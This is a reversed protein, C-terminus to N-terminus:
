NEKLIELTNCIFSSGKYDNRYTGNILVGIDKILKLKEKEYTEAFLVVNIEGSDVFCKLIAMNEKKKTQIIKVEQIICAISYVSNISSLESILSIDNRNISDRYKDLFSGSILIGLVEIEKELKVKEEEPYDKISPYLLMEEEKSLLSFQSTTNKVYQLIIPAAKRLTNRTKNFEDFSGANILTIIQTLTINYEKMRLIFDTFDIFNGNETREYVIAESVSSPIGKISTFPIILRRNESIFTLSSKNISPLSFSFKLAKLEKTFKNESLTQYDLLTSYFENPYHSKLYAMQYSIISYAVSHSKNFGYNAFKYILNFIDTADKKSFNNKIAGSIFSDKLKELKSEDKKSIARRFLDAESLSFLAVKRVIQMITEKYIIVGYTPKLIEELCPHIYKIPLNNNKTKAYIDIFEMPGPRYLALVAVIDDFTNMQVRKIANTMGESELQFIGQTFGLNLCSFAKKDDYPISSLDFNSENVKIKKIINDIISLNRLGLIDMKLFGLEELYIAEFQCVLKGDNGYNVPICTDLPEDNLIIGAAHLGTQRPLGEILKALRYIRGFYSDNCLNDFEPNTKRATELSVSYGKIQNTMTTIDMGNISFVRGIDRLSQRAGITQFTIINAMKEEGFRKSIYDIVDNRLYDAIDIDIDPMSTRGPNLFREFLLDYQLPDVEIINLCYAVLAGAASGRGPGVPINNNKAYNVYDSVILFYDLYGMSEIINIEYTLRDIYKKISYGKSTLFSLCKKMIYDRKSINEPVPYQLLKGRQINFSFSVNNFILHTNEIEDSTYLRNVANEKLFYYPGSVEEQSTLKKENKIADLIELALADNKNVYLHKPFAIKNYSHTLAFDRVKDMIIKDENSYLEIGLYFDEFHKQINFITKELTPHNFIFLEKIINNSSCPLVLILGKSYNSINDFNIEEKLSMLKCLNRYGEESKIFLSIYFDKDDFKINLSIGFLPIINNTKCQEFLSPYAYMNNLDCIGVHSFNNKKCSSIIDEIKLCSGLLTYGSHIHLPCYNM